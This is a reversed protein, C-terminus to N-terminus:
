KICLLPLNSKCFTKFDLEKVYVHDILELEKKLFDFLSKPLNKKNLIRSNYLFHFFDTKLM